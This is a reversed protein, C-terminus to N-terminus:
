PLSLVLAGTQKAYESVTERQESTAVNAFIIEPVLKQSIEEVASYIQQQGNFSFFYPKKQLQPVLQAEEDFYAEQEALETRSHKFHIVTVHSHAELVALEGPRPVSRLLVYNQHKPLQLLENASLVSKIAKYGTFEFYYNVISQIFLVSPGYM